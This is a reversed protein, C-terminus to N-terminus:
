VISLVGSLECVNLLSNKTFSESYRIKKIELVGDIVVVLIAHKLKLIYLYLMIQTIDCMITEDYSKRSYKYKVELLMVENDISLFGDIKGVLQIKEIQIIIRKQRDKVTYGIRTLENIVYDEIINGHETFVNSKPPIKSLSPIELLNFELVNLKPDSIYKKTKISSRHPDFDISKKNNKTTIIQLYDKKYKSFLRAFDTISIRIM